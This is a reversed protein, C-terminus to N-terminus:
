LPYPLKRNRLGKAFAIFPHPMSSSALRTFLGSLKIEFILIFYLALAGVILKHSHKLLIGFKVVEIVQENLVFLGPCPHHGTVHILMDFTKYRNLFLVSQFHVFFFFQKSLFTRYADTVLFGRELIKQQYM